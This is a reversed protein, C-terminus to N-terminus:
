EQQSLITEIDLGIQESIAKLLTDVQTHTYKGTGTLLQHNLTGIMQWTDSINMYLKETDVAWYLRHVSTPDYLPLDAPFILIRHAETDQWVLINLTDTISTCRLNTVQTDKILTKEETFDVKDWLGLPVNGTLFKFRGENETFMWVTNDGNHVIGSSNGGPLTKYGEITISM